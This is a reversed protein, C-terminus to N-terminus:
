NALYINSISSEFKSFKGPNFPLFREIDTFVQNHLKMEVINYQETFKVNNKLHSYIINTDITLRSQFFKFYERNFDVISKSKLNYQKFFIQEPYINLYQDEKTFKLKQNQSMKIERYYRSNGNYERIRYKFKNIDKSISAKYIEFYDTDYYISKIKNPEHLVNLETKFTLLFNNLQQNSLTFKFEKRM